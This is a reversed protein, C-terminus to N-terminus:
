ECIREGNFAFCSASAPTRAPEQPPGAWAPHRRAGTCTSVFSIVCSRQARLTVTINSVCRDHLLGNPVACGAAAAGPSGALAM